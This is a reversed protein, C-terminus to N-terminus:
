SLEFVKDTQRKMTLTFVIPYKRLNDFDDPKYLIGQCNQGSPFKSFKKIRQDDM